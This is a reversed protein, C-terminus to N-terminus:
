LRSSEYNKTCICQCFASHHSDKGIM